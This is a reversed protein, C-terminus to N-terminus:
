SVSRKVASFPEVNGCAQRQYRLSSRIPSTRLEEAYPSKNYHQTNSEKPKKRAPNVDMSANLVASRTDEQEPYFGVFPIFYLREEAPPFYQSPCGLTLKAECSPSSSPLTVRFDREVKKTSQVHM